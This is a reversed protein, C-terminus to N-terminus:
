FLQHLGNRSKCRSWKSKMRKKPAYKDGNTPPAIGLVTGVDLCRTLHGVYLKPFEAILLQSPCCPPLVWNTITSKIKGLCPRNNNVRGLSLFIHDDTIRRGDHTTSNAGVLDQLTWTLFWRIRRENQIKVVTKSRTRMEVTPEWNVSDWNMLQVVQNKLFHTFNLHTASISKILLVWM